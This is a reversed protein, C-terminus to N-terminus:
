VLYLSLVALCLSLNQCEDQMFILILIEQKDPGSFWTRDYSSWRTKSAVGLLPLCGMQWGDGSQKKGTIKPKVLLLRLWNMTLLGYVTSKVNLASLPAAMKAMFEPFFRNLASLVAKDDNHL